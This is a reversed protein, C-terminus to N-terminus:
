SIDAIQDCDAYTVFELLSQLKDVDNENIIQNANIMSLKRWDIGNKQYATM